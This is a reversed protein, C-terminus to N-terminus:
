AAGGEALRRREGREAVRELHRIRDEDFVGVYRWSCLAAGERAEHEAEALTSYSVQRVAATAGVKALMVSFRGPEALVAVLPRGPFPVVASTM